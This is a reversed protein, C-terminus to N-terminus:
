ALPDEDVAVRVAVRAVEDGEAPFVALNYEGAPVDGFVVEGTATVRSELLTDGRLLNVRAREVPAGARRLQVRLDLTDVAAAHLKVRLELEGGTSRLEIDPSAAPGRASATAPSGSRAFSHTLLRLGARGVAVAAELWPPTALAEFDALESACFPCGAVHARVREAEGMALSQEVWALLDERRPCVGRRGPAFEGLAALAHRLRVAAPTDGAGATAEAGALERRREDDTM